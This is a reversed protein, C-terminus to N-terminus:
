LRDSAEESRGAAAGLLVSVLSVAFLAHNTM